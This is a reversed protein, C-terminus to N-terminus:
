KLAEEYIKKLIKNREKISFKGSKILKICEKSMKKRLVGDEILKSTKKVLESVIKENHKKSGEWTFNKPLDILFGNKGEDIIEKRAYGNVSIIPIGFSMSELYVFGFSDSYGPYVLIDGMSFVKKFLDKQSMLNYIKIKKNKSYKRKIEEPIESVFKAYVNKYKKTLRNIAELAHLGGKLYFYRGVFILNLEKKYVKKKNIQLPVAPYVLELKDKYQPIWKEIEEKTQKTWPMIKKCNKMSIIKNLKKIGKNTEKTSVYISIIGEVDAVWPKDKNKSLCHACHILDYEGKPSRHANLMSPYFLNVSKRINRKLFNSFWFFRKNTIVGKQKTANLYEIEKTHEQLLYKYYPSDPFKWPYQLYVKIKKM